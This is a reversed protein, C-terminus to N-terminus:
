EGEYCGTPTCILPLICYFKLEILEDLKCYVLTNSDNNISIPLEDPMDVRYSFSIDVSEFLIKSVGRFSSATEVLTFTTSVRFIIGSSDYLSGLFILGTDRTYNCERTLSDIRIVDLSDQGQYVIGNVNLADGWTCGYALMGLLFIFILNTKAKDM